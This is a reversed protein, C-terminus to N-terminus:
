DLTLPLRMKISLLHGAFLLIPKAATERRLSLRTL